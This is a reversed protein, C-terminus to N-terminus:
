RKNDTFFFRKTRLWVKRSIIFQNLIDDTWINIIIRKRIENMSERNFTRIEWKPIQGFTFKRNHYIAVVKWKCNVAIQLQFCLRFSQWKLINQFILMLEYFDNIRDFYILGQKLFQNARGFSIVSYFGYQEFM